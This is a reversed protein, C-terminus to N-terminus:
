RLWEGTMVEGRQRLRTGEWCRGTHPVGDATCGVQKSRGYKITTENCDGVERAFFHFADFFLVYLYVTIPILENM